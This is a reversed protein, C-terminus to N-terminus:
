YFEIDVNGAGCKLYINKEGKYNINHRKGMGNLPAGGITIVGTGYEMFYNFDKANGELELLANGTDCELDAKGFVAGHLNLNGMGCKLEATNVSFDELEMTGAGAKCSLKQATIGTAFFEGAGISFEMDAASPLSSIEVKGAGNAIRVKRISANEPIGITVKDSTNNWWGELDMEVFLGDEEQRVSIEKEKQRVEVTIKDSKGKEIKVFGVQMDIVLEQVRYSPIEFNEKKTNGWDTVKAWEWYPSAAMKSFGGGTIMGIVLFLIGLVLLVTAAIGFAKMTKKM